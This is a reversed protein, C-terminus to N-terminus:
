QPLYLHAEAIVLVPAHRHERGIRQHHEDQHRNRHGDNEAQQKRGIDAPQEHAHGGAHIQDVLEHVEAAMDVLVPEHAVTGEDIRQAAMVGRMVVPPQHHLGVHVQRERNGVPQEARRVEVAPEDARQEVTIIGAVQLPIQAALRAPRVLRRRRRHPCVLATGNSAALCESM